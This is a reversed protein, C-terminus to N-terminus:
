SEKERTRTKPALSIPKANLCGDDMEADSVIRNSIGLAKGFDDQPIFLKRTEVFTGVNTIVEAEYVFEYGREIYKRVNM